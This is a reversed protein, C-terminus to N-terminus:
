KNMQNFLADAEDFFQHKKNGRISGMLRDFDVYNTQDLALYTLLLNWETRERLGKDSASLRMLNNYTQQAKLYEGQRFLAAGLFEQGLPYPTKFDAALQAAKGYQKDSYTKLLEALEENGEADQRVLYTDEFYQKALELGNNQTAVQPATQIQPQLQNQIIPRETSEQQPEQAPVTTTSENEKETGKRQPDTLQAIPQETEESLEPTIQAPEAPQEQSAPTDNSAIAPQDGAFPQFWLLAAATLIVLFSAAIALFRTRRRVKLKRINDPQRASYDQLMEKKWVKMNQRLDQEVLLEMADREFRQLEVQTALKPDQAIAREFAQREEEPLQRDLFAEIKDYTPDKEM